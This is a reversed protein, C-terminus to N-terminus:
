EDDDDDYYYNESIVKQSYIPLKHDRQASYGAEWLSSHAHTSHGKHFKWRTYKTM